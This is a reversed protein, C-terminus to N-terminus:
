RPTINNEKLQKELDAIRRKLDRIGGPKATRRTIAGTRHPGDPWFSRARSLLERLQDGTNGPHWLTLWEIDSAPLSAFVQQMKNPDAKRGM